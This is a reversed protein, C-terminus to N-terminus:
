KTSMTKLSKPYKSMAYATSVGAIAGFLHGDWSVNSGVTPLVGALLTMGYLIGVLLSIIAPIIKREMFGSAILFGVLGYVLASAGVHMATRGFCWLFLGGFIVISAIVQCYDKRTAVLIMLLISLPITNGILHGWGGHLFPMLVIGPLGSLTRPVLGYVNFNMSVLVVDILHVIWM